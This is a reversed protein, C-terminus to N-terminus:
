LQQAHATSIPLPHPMSYVERENGLFRYPLYLKLPSAWSPSPSSASITPPCPPSTSCYTFSSWVLSTSTQKTRWKGETSPGLQATPASPTFQSHMWTLLLKNELLQWTVDQERSKWFLYWLLFWLEPLTNWSKHNWPPSKLFNISDKSGTYPDFQSIISLVQMWVCRYSNNM